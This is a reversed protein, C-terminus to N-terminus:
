LMILALNRAGNADARHSHFKGTTITCLGSIAVNAPPVGSEELQIANAGWLDLFRGRVPLGAAAFDDALERSVEYAGPGASPGIVARVSGPFVGFADAMTAIARGAINSRTGARGAHVIGVARRVPDFLYLPVCDAVSVVLPLGSVNTILGDTDALPFADGSCVSRVNTGHVQQGFAVREPDVGCRAFFCTRAERGCEGNLRCDGDSKDSMVALSVGLSELSEFRIM